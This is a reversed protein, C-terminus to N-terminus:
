RVLLARETESRGGSTARVLYLGSAAAAGDEGRGDWPVETWGASSSRGDLVRTLRGTVDFIEVTYPGAKPAFFKVTTTPNFPNPAISLDLSSPAPVRDEALAVDTSTSRILTMKYRQIQSGSGAKRFVKIMYDGASPLPFDTLVETGGKGVAYVSDLLVTGTGNYLCFDLDLISDTAIWSQGGGENGINYGSGIPDVWVTLAGSANFLFWDVDTNRDISLTDVVMTDVLAGLANATAPTDDNERKDGYLRQGGRIDDDQPGIFIAGCAYAEMLKTCDEPIVHGLGMGHGHEHMVVNRLNAFNGTPVYYYYVDDTDLVMDGGNPYYNYALVNGSGDISRGSLRVDGRLGLAGPSNPLSAGDDSVEIYTTGLVDDWKDFANRIKTQWGTSGWVANFVAFLNSPGGDANTGDPVFSWTLTIPNGETGTSGDTATYTWRGANNYTEKGMALSPVYTPLNRLIEEATAPDTDPHLCLSVGPGEICSLGSAIQNVCVITAEKVIRDFPDQSNWLDAFEASPPAQDGPLLLFVPVALLAAAGLFLGTRRKSVLKM